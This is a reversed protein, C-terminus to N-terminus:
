NDKETMVVLDVTPYHPLYLGRRWGRRGQRHRWSRMMGQESM